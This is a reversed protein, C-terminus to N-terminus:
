NAGEMIERLTEPDMGRYMLLSLDGLTRLPNLFHEGDVETTVLGLGEGFVGEAMTTFLAVEEASPEMGPPAGQLSAAVLQAALDEACFEERVAGALVYCGGDRTVSVEGRNPIRLELETITVRTGGTVQSTESGMGTIEIGTPPPGMERLLPGLTHLVAMEDPPLLEVARELDGNLVAQATRRVAAEPSDAGDAPISEDPWPAGIEHLLLDGLTHLLSPYWSGDRRVTAVGLPEGLMRELEGATVSGTMARVGGAPAMGQQQLMDRYQPSLAMADPDLEVTLSGGTLRTIVLDEHVRESAQPDFRLQDTEVRLPMLGNLDTDQAALGLRKAEALGQESLDTLIGAEEPALANILGLMDNEGLATVFGTAAEEPTAAGSTVSDQQALVFWTAGGGLALVLGVVLSLVLGRTRKGAPPGGSPNPQGPYGQPTGPWPYPSGPVPQGPQGPYQQGPYQQGPQGPYQQGPQGPYQQGPYQQGPYQQGPPQQPPQRWEGDPGPTTM